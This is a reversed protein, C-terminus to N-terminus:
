RILTMRKTELITGNVILRYFYVGAPSPSGGRGRGNWTARHKGGEKVGDVLTAVRRGRVDYVVMQVRARLDVEYGIDTSHGFPNPYNQSLNDPRPPNTKGAATPFSTLRYIKGGFYDCVYMENNDDVGFSTIRLATQKVLTNVPPNIGDYELAWIQGNSYDAYIYKGYLEPAATGRYVYGGTISFGTPHDYQWLPPILGTTDCGTVPEHCSTGEMIDWGYNGGKVILNIEEWGNQGVDACWLLGTIPDFSARWPNRLGHVWIEERYGSSNGAYPNDVPISYFTGSGANDVDIRMMTGQMTTLDQGNGGPDHQDGGDGMTVYLYGDDPGFLLSGGAHFGNYPHDLGIFVYQSFFDASDPNVTSVQYRAIVSGRTGDQERTHNVFFYGNNSYDPHFTLALLGQSEVRTDIDLFLTRETVGPNNEFVWIQGSNETVFLRDSGDGPYQIDTPNTFTLNPFADVLEVTAGAPFHSFLFCVIALLVSRKM